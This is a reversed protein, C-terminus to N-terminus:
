RHTFSFRSAKHRPWGGQQFDARRKRLSALIILNTQLAVGYSGEPVSCCQAHATHALFEPRAEARLDGVEPKERQSGRLSRGSKRPGILYLIASTTSWHNPSDKM